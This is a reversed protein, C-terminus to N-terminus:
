TGAPRAPRPAGPPPARIGRGSRNPHRGASLLRGATALRRVEPVLWRWVLQAGQQSFHVGDVRVQQGDISAAYRGGPCIQRHLDFLALSAGQATLIVRATDLEGRLYREMAPTGLRITRGDIERDYVEWAGILLVAVDPDRERVAQAYDRPWRECTDNPPHPGDKSIVTGRALGCGIIAAGRMWVTRSYQAPIGWFALTFAVSDGVVLVRTAGPPRFAVSKAYERRHLAVPDVTDSGPARQLALGSTGVFRCVAVVTAAVPVWLLRGRVWPVRGERVPLELLHYSLTAVVFTVAFRLVLLATGNLGARAPSMFVFIPWHWLYLGYSIRGVAPLPPVRLM